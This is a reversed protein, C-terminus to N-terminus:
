LASALAALLGHIIACFFLVVGTKKHVSVPVRIRHFGSMLQFTLLLMNAVGLLLIISVGGIKM